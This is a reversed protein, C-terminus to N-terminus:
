CWCAIKVVMEKSAEIILEIESDPPVLLIQKKQTIYQILNVKHTYEGTKDNQIWVGNRSGIASGTGAPIADTINKVIQKQEAKTYSNKAVKTGASASM